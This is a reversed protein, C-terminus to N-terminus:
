LKDLKKDDLLKKMREWYLIKIEKILLEEQMDQSTKIPIV